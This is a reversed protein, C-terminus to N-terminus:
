KRLVAIYDTHNLDVKNFSLVKGIIGIFTFLINFLPNKRFNKQMQFEYTKCYEVALSNKRALQKIAQPAISFRLFTKFPRQGNVGADKVGFFTQYAWVHFWHPTFKSILGKTSWVNPAAVVIIGGKKVAKLFNRVAKNPEPLHELVDWCIIVDYESSPLDYYQIDGLIKENLSVNRELQQESIDIGVVRVNQGLHIRSMSGCGAELVKTVGERPLLRDVVAQLEDLESFHGASQLEINTNEITM